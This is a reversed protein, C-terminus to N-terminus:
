MVFFVADDNKKDKTKGKFIKRTRGPFVRLVCVGLGHGFKALVDEQCTISRLSVLLFVGGLREEERKEVFDGKNRDSQRKGRGTKGKCGSKLSRLSVNKGLTCRSM